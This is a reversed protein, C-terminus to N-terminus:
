FSRHKKLSKLWALTVKFLEEQKGEEAFNHGAGKIVSLSKPNNASKYMKKGGGILVGKGALIIKIPAQIKKILDLSDVTKSERILEERLVVEFGENLIRGNIAKIFKCGYFFKVIVPMYSGDWFIVGDFDKKASSLISPAGYSHGVVFIKKAGNKRLYDVVTDIDQGHIKLTCEGLNRAGKQWDYLNFRFVSFGNKEFFRAANYHMAEDMHGTLGHVLVITPKNLSGRLKAYIIKKDKTKLRLNKEM